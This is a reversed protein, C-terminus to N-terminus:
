APRSGPATGGPGPLTRVQLAEAPEYKLIRGLRRGHLALLSAFHALRGILAQAWCLGGRVSLKGSMAGLRFDAGSRPGAQPFFFLAPPRLLGPRM